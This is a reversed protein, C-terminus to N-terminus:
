RMAGTVFESCAGCLELKVVCPGIPVIYPTFTDTARECLECRGDDHHRRFAAATCADRGCTATRTTLLVAVHASTPEPPWVVHACRAEVGRLM